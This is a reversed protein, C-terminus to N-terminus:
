SEQYSWSLDQLVGITRICTLSIFVNKLEHAATWGFRNELLGYPIDDLTLMLTLSCATLTLIGILMPTFSGLYGGSVVRGQGLEENHGFETSTIGATNRWGSVEM